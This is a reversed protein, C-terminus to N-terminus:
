RQWRNLRPINADIGMCYFIVNDFNHEFLRKLNYPGAFFIQKTKLFPANLYRSFQIADGEGQEYLLLIPSQLGSIDKALIKEYEFGILRKEHKIWGSVYSGKKLECFAIGNRAEEGLEADSLLKTHEAIAKDFQQDAEYAQALFYTVDSDNKCSTVELLLSIARKTDGTHQCCIALQVRDGPLADLEVAKEAMFLADKYKREGSLEHSKLSYEERTM